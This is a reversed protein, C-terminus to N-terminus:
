EKNLNKDLNKVVKKQLNKFSLDKINIYNKGLKAVIFAM